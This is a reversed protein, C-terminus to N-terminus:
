APRDVRLISIIMFNHKVSFEYVWRQFHAVTLDQPFDEDRRGICMAHGGSSLLFKCTPAWWAGHTAGRSLFLFSNMSSYM